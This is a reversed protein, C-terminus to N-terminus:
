AVEWIRLTGNRALAATALKGTRSTPSFPYVPTGTM